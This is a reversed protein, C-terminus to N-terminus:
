RRRPVDPRRMRRARACRDRGARCQHQGAPLGDLLPDFEVIDAGAARLLEAHEAYSFSFARGSALAVTVGCATRDGVADKASWPDATVHGGAAAVVGGLDVHEAVLSTM